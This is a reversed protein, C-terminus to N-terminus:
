FEEVIGLGFLAIDFRVPDDPDLIRLNKTLEEVAKWDNQQRMLLSLKRAVTGTHIDLPCYLQYPQFAKWIGFDIGGEDS